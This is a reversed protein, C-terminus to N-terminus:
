FGNEYKEIGKDMKTQLNLAMSRVDNMAEWLSANEAKLRANEAEM